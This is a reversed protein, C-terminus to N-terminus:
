RRAERIHKGDQRVIVELKMEGMRHTACSLCPDYCRIGMEIGNLLFSDPKDIFRQAAMGVTQNIASINQQTAVLLNADTVIGNADVKYDHILVGRPAEVHATANRPTDLPAKVTEAYLEKDKVIEALKELSHLLEILRAWHYLTTQHCPRKFAKRFQDLEANAAPTDIRDCANVRALPGVRYTVTKGEPTKCLVHKAYSHPSTEEIMNKTWDDEHFDWNQGSPSVLRLDGDYFDLCGKSVTGLYYSELPLVTHLAKQKLLADKAFQFLKRGLTVGESSLKELRERKDKDLPASVGGAVATVPHTGRGGILEVVKQGISRLRLAQKAVEPAAQVLGIINRQAPDADIGLVLDPGALAFFHVAHSHIMAGMNLARRLLEASRPIKAGFVKDVTRASVLHHSQPCTGCIRPTITPMMEVQMGRLFTEWGRFDIVKFVSGTVKKNDDIDIEVRAHGEIRTVPDITIKRSM